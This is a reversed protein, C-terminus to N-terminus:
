RVTKIEYIFARQGIHREIKRIFAEAHKVSTSARAFAFARIETMKQGSYVFVTVTTM